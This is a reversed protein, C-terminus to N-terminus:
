SQTARYKDILKSLEAVTAGRVVADALEVMEVPVLAAVRKSHKTVYVIDGRYLVRNVFDSLGTKLEAIGAEGGSQDTMTADYEITLM